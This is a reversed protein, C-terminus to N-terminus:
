ALVLGLVKNRSAEDLLVILGGPGELDLELVGDRSQCTLFEARDLEM